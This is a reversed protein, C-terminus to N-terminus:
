TLEAGVYGATKKNLSSAVAMFVSRSTPLITLTNGAKKWAGVNGGSAMVPQFACGSSDRGFGCM